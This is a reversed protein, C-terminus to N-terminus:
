KRESMVANPLLVLLRLGGKPDGFFHSEFLIDAVPFIEVVALAFKDRMCERKKGGQVADDFLVEDLSEAGFDLRGLRAAEEAELQHDFVNVAFHM